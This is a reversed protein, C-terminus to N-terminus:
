LPNQSTDPVHESAGTDESLEELSKNLETVQEYLTEATKVAERTQNIVDITVGPAAIILEAMHKTANLTDVSWDALWKGDAMLSDATEKTLGGAWKAEGSAFAVGKNAQELPTPNGPVPDTIGPGTLQEFHGEVKDGLSQRGRIEEIKAQMAEFPGTATDIVDTVYDTVTSKIGKIQGALKAGTEAVEEAQKGVSEVKDMDPATLDTNEAKEAGDTMLKNLKSDQNKELRRASDGVLFDIKMRSTGGSGKKGSKAKKGPNPLKIKPAQISPIKM